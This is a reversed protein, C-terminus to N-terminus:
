QAKNPLKEVRIAGNIWKTNKKTGDKNVVVAATGTDSNSGSTHLQYTGLSRLTNDDASNNESNDTVKLQGYRADYALTTKYREQGDGLTQAIAAATDNGIYDLQEYLAGKGKFITGFVVSRYNGAVKMFDEMTLQETPKDLMERVTKENPFYNIADEAKKYIAEASNVQVLQPDVRSQDVIDYYSKSAGTDDSAEFTGNDDYFKYETPTVVKHTEGTNPTAPLPAESQGPVPTKEGQGPVPPATATPAKMFPGEAAANAGIGIGVAALAGVGLITLKTGLSWKKKEPARSAAVQAALAEQEEPTIVPHEVGRVNAKYTLDEPTPLENAKQSLPTDFEFNPNDVREAVDEPVGPLGSHAEKTIPTSPFDEPRNSM